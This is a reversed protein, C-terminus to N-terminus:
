ICRRRPIGTDINRLESQQIIIATKGNDSIAASEPAAMSYALPGAHILPLVTGREDAIKGPSRTCVFDSEIALMLAVPELTIDQGIGQYLEFSVRNGDLM